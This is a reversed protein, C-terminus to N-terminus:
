RGLRPVSESSAWAIDQKDVDGHWALISVRKNTSHSRFTKSLRNRCQRSLGVFRVANSSQLGTEVHMDLFWNFRACERFRNRLKHACSGRSSFAVGGSSLEGNSLRSAGDVTVSGCVIREAVVTGAITGAAGCFLGELALALWSARDPFDFAIFFKRPL